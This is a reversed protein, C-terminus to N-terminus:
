QQPEWVGIFWDNRDDYRGFSKGLWIMDAVRETGEEPLLIWPTRAEGSHVSGLGLLLQDRPLQEAHPALALMEALTAQRLNRMAYERDLFNYSVLQSIQFLVLTLTQPDGHEFPFWNFSFNKHVETFGWPEMMEAFSKRYDVTVTFVLLGHNLLFRTAQELLYPDGVTAVADAAEGGQRVIESTLKQGIVVSENGGTNSM